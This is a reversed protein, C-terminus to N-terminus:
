CSSGSRVVLNCVLLASTSPLQAASLRARPTVVPCRAPPAPEPLSLVDEAEPVVMASVSRAMQLPRLSATGGAEKRADWQIQPPDLLFLNEFFVKKKKKKQLLGIGERGVESKQLRVIVGLQHLYFM